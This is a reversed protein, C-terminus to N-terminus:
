SRPPRDLRMRHEIRPAGTEAFAVHRWTDRRDDSHVSAEMRPQPGTDEPSREPTERECADGLVCMGGGAPRDPPPLAVNAVFLLGGLIMDPPTM